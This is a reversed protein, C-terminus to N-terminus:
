SLFFFFFFLSFFLSLSDLWGKRDGGITVAAAYGPRKKERECHRKAYSGSGTGGGGSSKKKIKQGREVLRKSRSSIMTALQYMKTSKIYLM